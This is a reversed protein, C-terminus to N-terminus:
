RPLTFFVTSGHGLESEIWIRGGHSTVIQKSIPLGLGTGKYGATKGRWYRDFMHPLDDRPIGPGNDAVAFVVENQRNEVRVTVQSAGVKLANTVLNSLVQVVRDGDADVPLITEEIEARLESGRQTAGPQLAEVVERVLAPVDQPTCTISFRGADIQGIDTLDRILRGMHDAARRITEARHRVRRGGDDDSASAIQM